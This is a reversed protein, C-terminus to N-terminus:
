CDCGAASGAGIGSAPLGGVTVIGFAPRHPPYQKGLLLFSLAVDLAAGPLLASGASVIYRPHSRASM